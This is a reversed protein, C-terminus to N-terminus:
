GRRRQALGFDIRILPIVRKGDDGKNARLRPPEAARGLVWWECWRAPPSHALNRTERELESPAEPGSLVRAEIVGRTERLQLRRDEMTKEAFEREREGKEYTQLRSWTQQETGM